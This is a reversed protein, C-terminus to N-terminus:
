AEARRRRMVVYTLVSGLVFGLLGWLFGELPKPGGGIGVPCNETGTKSPGDIKCTCGNKVSIPPTGCVCGSTLECKDGDKLERPKDGTNQQCAILLIALAAIVVITYFFKQM